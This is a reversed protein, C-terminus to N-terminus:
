RADELFEVDRALKEAQRQGEELQKRLRRNEARLRELEALAGAPDFDSSVKKMGEVVEQLRRREAESSTARERWVELQRLARRVAAELADLKPFDISPKRGEYESM